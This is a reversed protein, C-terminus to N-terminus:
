HLEETKFEEMFVRNQPIDEFQTLLERRVTPISKYEPSTPHEDVTQLKMHPVDEPPSVVKRRQHPTKDRPRLDTQLTQFSHHDVSFPFVLKCSGSCARLQVDVEVETRYLDVLQKQVDRNMEKLKLSLKSSRKRLSTLNLALVESQEVFKLESVYRSVLFRRNHNYVRTMAAMSKETADEHIKVTKCLKTLKREVKSEMQSILGQLRCGSPCKSVWDDDACLPFHTHTRCRKKMHRHGSPQRGDQRQLRTCVASFIFLYFLYNLDACRPGAELDFM